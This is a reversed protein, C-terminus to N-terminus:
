SITRVHELALFFTEQTIGTKRAIPLGSADTAMPISLSTTRDDFDVAEHHEMELDSIIKSLKSYDLYYNSWEPRMEKIIKEGYKVM